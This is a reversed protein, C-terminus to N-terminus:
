PFAPIRTVTNNNFNTVWVSQGDFAIDLIGAGADVAGLVTGTLSVKTLGSATTAWLNTGDFVISSIQVM